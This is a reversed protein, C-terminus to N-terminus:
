SSFFDTQIQFSWANGRYGAVEFCQRLSSYRKAKLLWKWWSAGKQINGPTNGSLLALPLVTKQWVTAANSLVSEECVAKDETLSIKETTDQAWLSRMRWWISNLFSCFWSIKIIRISSQCFLINRPQLILPGLLSSTLLLAKFFSCCASSPLAFRNQNDLSNGSVQFLINNWLVSSLYWEM